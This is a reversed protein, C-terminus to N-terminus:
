GRTLHGGMLIAGAPAVSSAQGYVSVSGHCVCTRAERKVCDEACLIALWRDFLFEVVSQERVDAADEILIASFQDAGTTGGVVNM